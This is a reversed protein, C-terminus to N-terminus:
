VTYSPRLKAASKDARQASWAKAQISGAKQTGHILLAFSADGQWAHSDDHDIELGQLQADIRWNVIIASKLSHQAILHDHTGGYSATLRLNVPISDIHQVWFYIAKTYAYFLIGPRLKAVELWAQFYLLSYFDGAAHIRVLTIKDPLSSLILSVLESKTKCSRLMDFNHWHVVRASRAWAEGSAAFCRVEADKGDTIQGTERDAFALCTLAFPCAHGAPISFIAQGQKILKANRRSFRLKGSAKLKLKLKEIRADARAERAERDKRDKTLARASKRKTLQGYTM